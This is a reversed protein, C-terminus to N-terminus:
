TVGEGLSLAADIVDFHIGLSPTSNEFHVMRRVPAGLKRLWDSFAKEEKRIWPRRDDCIQYPTVHVHVRIGLRALTGLLGKSTIWTNKGGSHGGDLWYMDTIRAVMPSLSEDDPTLTKLYHFEYLFQNLVVCGKSFGILKVEGKKLDRKEEEDKEKLNTAISQLLRELHHLAYHMPTHEPAGTNNSPVFNDYCAFVKFEMRRQEQDPSLFEMFTALKHSALRSPRVVVIHERQFHSQLIVATNELNWKIYQKNDRHTAMNEPFDQVDGGFFVVVSSSEERNYPEMYVVDNTRGQYGPVKTMRIPGGMM